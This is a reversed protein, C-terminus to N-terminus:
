PAGGAPRRYWHGSLPDCAWLDPSDADAFPDDDAPLVKGQVISDAQALNPSPANCSGQVKGQVILPHQALNPQPAYWRYTAGAKQEKPERLIRGNELLHALADHLHRFSPRPDGLRAMVEKTTLPESATYIVGEIRQLLTKWEIATADGACQLDGDRWTLLLSGGASTRGEYSLLLGDEGKPSLSILMDFMGSLANTGAFRDSIVDGEMKRVHHLAILTFGMQRQLDVLPALDQVVRSPHLEDQMRWVGRLTDVVVVDYPQEQMRALLSERPEGHPFVVTVGDPLEDEEFTSLRTDWDDESEESLYLVKLDHWHLIGGRFLTETKGVRPKGAFLHTRGKRIIGTVGFLPISESEQQVGHRIRFGKLDKLSYVRNPELRACGSDISCPLTKGNRSPDVFRKLATPHLRLRRALEALTMERLLPDATTALWDALLQQLASSQDDGAFRHVERLLMDASARARAQLPQSNNTSHQISM